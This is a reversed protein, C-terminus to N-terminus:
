GKLEFAYEEVIQQFEYPEANKSLFTDAMRLAEHFREGKTEASYIIVKKQPYKDKLALALGLGEDKFGLSIGVGQIDVFFIDTNSVLDCDLSDIDKVTKSKTWGTKQLIKVVKFRGDDDIFLINTISKLLDLKTNSETSTNEPSTRDEKSDFNIATNIINNIPEVPNPKFIFKVIFVFVAVGVGSFLWEKNNIVIDYM